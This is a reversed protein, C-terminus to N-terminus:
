PAGKYVAPESYGRSHLNWAYVEVSTGKDANFEFRPPNAMSGLVLRKLYGGQTFWAEILYGKFDDGAIGSPSWQVIVKDGSRTVSFGQPKPAYPTQPLMGKADIAPLRSIDAGGLDVLDKSIWCGSTYGEPQVWLWTNLVNRGKVTVRDGQKLGFKPLHYQSDGYRCNAQPVTVTGSVTLVPTPTPTGPCRPANKLDFILTIQRGRFTVKVMFISPAHEFVAVPEGTPTWGEIKDVKGQDSYGTWEAKEIGSKLSPDKVHLEIVTGGGENTYIVFCVDAETLDPTPTAPPATPTLTATGTPTPTATPTATASPTPSPTKPTATPPTVAVVPETAEAEEEEEPCVLDIRAAGVFARLQTSLLATNPIRVTTQYAYNLATRLAVTLGRLLTFRLGLRRAITMFNPQQEFGVNEVSGECIVGGIRASARANFYMGDDPFPNGHTFSADPFGVAILGNQATQVTKSATGEPESAGPADDFVEISVTAGNVSRGLPDFVGVVVIIKGMANPPTILKVPNCAALLVALLMSAVLFLSQRRHPPIRSFGM